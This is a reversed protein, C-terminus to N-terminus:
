FDEQFLQHNAGLWSTLLTQCIIEINRQGPTLSIVNLDLADAIQKVNNSLAHPLYNGAWLIAYTCSQLKAKLESLKLQHQGSIFIWQIGPYERNLQILSQHDDQHGGIIALKGEQRRVTEFLTRRYWRRQSAGQCISCLHESTEILGYKAYPRAVDACVKSGCYFSFYKLLMKPEEHQLSYLLTPGQIPHELLEILTELAEQEELGYSNLEDWILSSISNPSAKSDFSPSPTVNPVPTEKIQIQLNEIQNQLTKNENKLAQFDDLLSQYRKKYYSNPEEEKDVSDKQSSATKIGQIDITPSKLTSPNPDQNQVHPSPKPDSEQIHHGGRLQRLLEKQGQTSRSVLSEGKNTKEWKRIPRTEVRISSKSRSSTEIPKKVQGLGIRQDELVHALPHDVPKNFHLIAQNEAKKSIRKGNGFGNKKLWKKLQEPSIELRQALEYHNM